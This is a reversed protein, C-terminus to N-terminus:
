KRDKVMGFVLKSKCILYFGMKLSGSKVVDQLRGITPTQQQELKKKGM